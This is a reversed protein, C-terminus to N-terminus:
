QGHPPIRPPDPRLRKGRRSHSETRPEWRKPHELPNRHTEPRRGSHADKLIDGFALSTFSISVRLKYNRPERRDEDEQSEDDARYDDGVPDGTSQGPNGGRVGGRGRGRQGRSGRGRRSGRAPISGSGTNKGAQLDSVVDKLSNVSVALDGIVDRMEGLMQPIERGFTQSAHPHRRRGAGAPTPTTPSPPSESTHPSDSQIPTIPAERAVPPTDPPTHGTSPHNANTCPTHVNQEGTSSLVPSDYRPDTARSSTPNTTPTTFAHEPPTHHGLDSFDEPVEEIRAQTVGPPQWSSQHIVPSFTPTTSAATTQQHLYRHTATGQTVGSSPGAIQNNTLSMMPTSFVASTSQNPLHVLGGRHISGGRHRAVPGTTRRPAVLSRGASPNSIPGTTPEVNQFPLYVLGGHSHYSRGSLM